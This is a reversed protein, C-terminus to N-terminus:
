RTVLERFLAPCPIGSGRTTGGAVAALWGHRAFGDRCRVRFRDCRREHVTVHIGAAQAMLRMPWLGGVAATSTIACGAVLPHDLLMQFRADRGMRTTGLTMLRMTRSWRGGRQANATM